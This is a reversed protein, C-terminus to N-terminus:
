VSFCVCISSFRSYDASHLVQAAQVDVRGAEGPEFAENQLQLLQVGLVDLELVVVLVIHALGLLELLKQVFVDFLQVLGVVDLAVVVAEITLTM